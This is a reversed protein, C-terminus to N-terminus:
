EAHSDGGRSRKPRARELMPKIRTRALHLLSGLAGKRSVYWNSHVHFEGTWREKYEQAHGSLDVARFGRRACDSLIAAIILHGPAYEAFAEDHVCELEGYHGRYTVAMRSAITQGKVDLFYFSLYGFREAARAIESYFTRIKPSDAVTRGEHGKWSRRELAYFQELGESATEVRRLVIGDEGVKNLIRKVTHRLNKSRALRHADEGDWGALAIHPTRMYRSRHVPFGAASAARTLTEAAGSEVVNPLELVHWGPLDAIAKWLAEAVDVAGDRSATVLDFPYGDLTSTGRLKWLGVLRPVLWRWERILPLVAVLRQEADRAAFVVAESGQGFSTLFARSWEPRHFPLDSPGQDCMQRWEPELSDIVEVSGRLVDVTIPPKGDM